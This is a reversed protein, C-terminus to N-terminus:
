DSSDAFFNSLVRINRGILTCGSAGDVGINSVIASNNAAGISWRLSKNLLKGSFFPSIRGYAAIAVSSISLQIDTYLDSTANPASYKL